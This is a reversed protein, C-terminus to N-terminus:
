ILFIRQNVFSCTWESNTKNREGWGRKSERLIRISKEWRCQRIHTIDVVMRCLEWHRRYRFGINVIFNGLSTARSMRTSVREFRITKFTRKECSARTISGHLPCRVPHSFCFVASPFFFCRFPNKILRERRQNHLFEKTPLASNSIKHLFLTKVYRQTRLAQQSKSPDKRSLLHTWM